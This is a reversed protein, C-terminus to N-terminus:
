FSHLYLINENLNPHKLRIKKRPKEQEATRGEIEPSPTCNDKPMAVAKTRDYDNHIIALINSASLDYRHCQKYAGLDGELLNQCLQKSGPPAICDKVLACLFWWHLVKEYIEPTNRLFAGGGLSKVKRLRKQDAPFYDYMLPNTLATIHPQALFFVLGGNKKAMEYVGTLDSRLLRFSADVWFFNSRTNLMDQVIMPKFAYTGLAKVHEPYKSYNFYVYHVNCWTNLEEKQADSLGLDYFYIAHGPFLTQATAVADRCENFHNSSSYTVFALDYAVDTKNLEKPAFKPECKLKNLLELGEALSKGTVTKGDVQTSFSTAKYVHRPASDSQQQPSSTKANQEEIRAHITAQAFLGFYFCAMVKVSEYLVLGQKLHM